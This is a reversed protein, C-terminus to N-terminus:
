EKISVMVDYYEHPGNYIELMWEKMEKKENMTREKM